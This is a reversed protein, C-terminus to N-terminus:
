QDGGRPYGCGPKACYTKGDREIHGKGELDAGCAVCILASKDQAGKGARHAALQTMIKASAEPDIGPWRAAICVPIGAVEALQVPDIIGESIAQTVKESLEAGLIESPDSLEERTPTPREIRGPTPREIKGTIPDKNADVGDMTQTIVERGPTCKDSVPAKNADVGDVTQTIVERGPTCKDSVPAKNADMGDM